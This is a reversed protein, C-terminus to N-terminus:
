IDHGARIYVSVEHKDNWQVISCDGFSFFAGPHSAPNHFNFTYKIEEELFSDPISLNFQLIYGWEYETLNCSYDMIYSSFPVVGDDAYDKAFQLAQKYTIM